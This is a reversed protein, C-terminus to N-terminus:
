GSSSCWRVGNAIVKRVNEDFFTPYTEHGPRFYFVRGAGMQWCCGSRFVEGGAFSSLFVLEDPPRIEFRECYMEEPDMTFTEPLGEAIPHSPEVVYIKEPKGDERWGGLEGGTGQLLMFPKSKHASHIPFFGLGRETVHKVVRQANEDSVEKHRLHGWWVLVDASALADETLGQEPDDITVVKVEHGALAAAIAGGIGQPYFEAKATGEDWVLVNAMLRNNTGPPGHETMATKLAACEAM